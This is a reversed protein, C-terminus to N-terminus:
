LYVLMQRKMSMEKMTWKVCVCVDCKERVISQIIDFMEESEVKEM